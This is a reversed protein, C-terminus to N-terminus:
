IEIIRPIEEPLRTLMEYNLQDSFDSFSAVTIEAGEQKGILVVEDGRKTEPIDTIKVILVNMNVNGIVDVRHGNILVRGQYSLSRSYGHAYGVPITAIKMNNRAMYSTGYGVFEGTKVYKTDMVKSKWTIIRQLPDDKEKKDSIYNIFAEPSPWFGFQMIGIRVMDLRTEPYTITAASSAVHRYKPKISHRRFKKIHNKYRKIQTLIRAYNAISEAGAFHTCIGELVYYKKNKQLIKILKDVDREDFGTRNMGTEVELHIRAPKGIRKAAELANFLRDFDFVYFEVGKQIAWDLEYVDIMGMIMIGSNQRSANYARLAENADFVSFHNIGCDEALPVFVEIGHGYANGKIVSSFRVKKGVLNQIFNLNHTLAQKNIYLTSTQFM